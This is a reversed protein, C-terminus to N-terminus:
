KASLYFYKVFACILGVVLLDWGIVLFILTM